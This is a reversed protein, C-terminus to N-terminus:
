DNCPYCLIALPVKTGEAITEPRDQVVYKLETHKKALFMTTSGIGGGVDVVVDGPKLTKWVPGLSM